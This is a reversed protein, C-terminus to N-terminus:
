LTDFFYNLGQGLEWISVGTKLEDALDLRVLISYLTPYFVFGGDNSRFICLTNIKSYFLVQLRVYKVILYRSAKQFLHVCIKSLYKIM